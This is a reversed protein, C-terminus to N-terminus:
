VESTAALTKPRTGWSFYACALLSFRCKTFSSVLAIAKRRKERWRLTTTMRRTQSKLYTVGSGARRQVYERTAASAHLCVQSRFQEVLANAGAESFRATFQEINQSACCFYLGLSRAVPMIALLATVPSMRGVGVDTPLLRAGVRPGSTPALFHPMEDSLDNPSSPAVDSRGLLEGCEIRAASHAASYLSPFPNKFNKM